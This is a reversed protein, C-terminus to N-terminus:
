KFALLEGETMGGNALVYEDLKGMMAEIVRKSPTGIPFVGSESKPSLTSLPRRASFEKEQRRKLKTRQSLM